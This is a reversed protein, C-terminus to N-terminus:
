FRGWFTLHALVLARKAAYGKRSDHIAVFLDLEASM